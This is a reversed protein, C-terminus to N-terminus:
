NLYLLLNSERFNKILKYLVYFMILINLFKSQLILKALNEM